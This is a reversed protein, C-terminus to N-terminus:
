SVFNLKYTTCLMSYLLLLPKSIATINNIFLALIRDNELSITVLLKWSFNLIKFFFIYFMYLITKLKEKHYDPILYDPFM